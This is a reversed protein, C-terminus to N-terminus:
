LTSFRSHVTVSWLAWVHTSTKKGPKPQIGNSGVGPRPCSPAVYEAPEDLKSM